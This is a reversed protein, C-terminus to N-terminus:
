APSDLLAKLIDLAKADFNKTTIAEQLLAREAETVQGDRLFLERLSEAELRDILHDDELFFELAERLTSVTIEPSSEPAM